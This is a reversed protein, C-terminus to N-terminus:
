KGKSKMLAYALGAVALVTIIPTERIMGPFESSAAKVFPNGAEARAQQRLAAALAARQQARRNLLAVIGWVVLAVIVAAGGVGSSAVVPGYVQDLAFWGTIVFAVYATVSLVAIIASGVVNRQVREAAPMFSGAVIQLIQAALNEM